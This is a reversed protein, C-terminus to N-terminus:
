RRARHLVGCLGGFGCLLALLSGPEPTHAVSDGNVILYVSELRVWGPTVVYGSGPNNGPNFTVRFTDKGDLLCSGDYHQFTSTRNLDSYLSGSTISGGACEATLYGAQPGDYIMQGGSMRYITGVQVDAVWKISMSQISNFSRYFDINTSYVTSSPNFEREAGTVRLQYTSTSAWSMGLACVLLLVVLCSFIGKRM